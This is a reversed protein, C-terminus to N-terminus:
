PETLTEAEPVVVIFMGCPCDKVGDNKITLLKLVFALPAIPRLISAVLM